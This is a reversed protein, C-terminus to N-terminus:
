ARSMSMKLMGKLHSESDSRLRRSNAIASIVAGGEEMQGRTASLSPWPNFPLAQLYQATGPCRDARTMQIM